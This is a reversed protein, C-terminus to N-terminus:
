CWRTDPPLVATSVSPLDAPIANKPPLSRWHRKMPKACTKECWVWKGADLTEIILKAHMDQKTGIVAIDITPDNLIDKYDKTFYGVDYRSKHRDIISDDLEAIAAINIYGTAAATPLHTCSIFSGAGIFGINVKKM